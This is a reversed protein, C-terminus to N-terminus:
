LYKIKVVNEFIIKMLMSMIIVRGRVMISNNNNICKRNEHDNNSGLVSFM